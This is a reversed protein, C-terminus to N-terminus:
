KIHVWVKRHRPGDYECLYVSQWTGLCLEGNEIIVQLSVGTLTSKVHADSNGEFHHFEESLPAIKELQHLLDRKVDPDGNENITLGVTTHPVFVTMIGEEIKNDNIISTLRKTIDIIQCRKQTAVELEHM